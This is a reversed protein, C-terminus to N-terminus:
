FFKQASSKYFGVFADDQDEGSVQKFIGVEGHVEMATSQKLSRRVLGFFCLEFGKSMRGDNEVGSQISDGVREGLCLFGARVRIGLVFLFRRPGVESCKVRGAVGAVKPGAKSAAARAMSRYMVM